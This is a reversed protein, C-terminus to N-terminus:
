LVLPSLPQRGSPGAIPRPMSTSASRYEGCPTSTGFCDPTQQSPTELFISGPAQFTGIVRPNFDFFSEATRCGRGISTHGRTGLLASTSSDDSLRAATSRTTLPLISTQNM